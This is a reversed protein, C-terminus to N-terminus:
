TVKATYLCSLLLNRVFRCDGCVYKVVVHYSFVIQIECCMQIIQICKVFTFRGCCWLDIYYSDDM